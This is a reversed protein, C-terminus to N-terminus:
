LLGLKKGAVAIVLSALGTLLYAVVRWASRIIDGMEREVTELRAELRAVRELMRACDLQGNQM